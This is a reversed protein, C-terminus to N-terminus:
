KITPRLRINRIEFEMPTGPSLMGDTRFIFRIQSNPGGWKVPLSTIKAEIDFAVSRWDPATWLEDLDHYNQAITGWDFPYYLFTLACNDTSKYEFTVSLDTRRIQQGLPEWIIYREPASTDMVMKYHNEGMQQITMGVVGFDFNAPTTRNFDYTLTIIDRPDIEPACTFLRPGATVSDDDDLEATVSFDTDNFGLDNFDQHGSAAADLDEEIYMGSANTYTVYLNVPIETENVWEMRAGNETPTFTVSELVYRPAGTYTDPACSASVSKSSSGDRGYATLTFTHPDTDTFGTLVATTVGDAAASYRSVKKNVKEGRSDTYSLLTYYYDEDAPANWKVIVSGIFPSCEVGSVPSMAGASDKEDDCSSLCVAGILVSLLIHKKMTKM